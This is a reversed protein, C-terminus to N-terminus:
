HFSSRYGSIVKKTEKKKLKNTILIIRTNHFYPQSFFLVRTIKKALKGM